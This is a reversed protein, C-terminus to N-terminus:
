RVALGASVLSGNRSDRAPLLITFSAGGGERRAYDLRGGHALAVQRALTLGVGAGGPKTTFFPTFAAEPEDEALGPGNDEVAITVQGDDVRVVLGIQADPRGAVAEVANKLLNILAQELLEPDADIGLDPPVVKSAYGVGAKRMQPAMLQELRTVLAAMAVPERAAPPLDCLKRYREVFNMLGASRRAIVEMAEAM